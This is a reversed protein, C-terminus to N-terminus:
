FLFKEDEFLIMFLIAGVLGIGVSGGGGVEKIM